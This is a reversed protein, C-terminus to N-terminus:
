DDVWGIVTVRTAKLERDQGRGGSEVVTGEVEVSCGTNLEAIEKDYNPLTNDAVVQLTDFSSGDSLAIFSFGGKSTRRTRVWGGISVAAGVPIGHHLIDVISTRAM